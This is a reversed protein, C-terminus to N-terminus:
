SRSFLNVGERKAVWPNESWYECLASRGALAAPTEIRNLVHESVEWFCNTSALFRDGMSSLKYAELNCKFMDVSTSVKVYPPLNNWYNIVRESLFDKRSKSM